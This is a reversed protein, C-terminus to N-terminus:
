YGLASILWKLPYRHDFNFLVTNKSNCCKPDFHYTILFIYSIQKVNWSIVIKMLLICAKSSRPNSKAIIPRNHWLHVLVIAFHQLSIQDLKKSDYRLLEKIYTVWVSFSIGQDDGSLAKFLNHVTSHDAVGSVAPAIRVFAEEGM